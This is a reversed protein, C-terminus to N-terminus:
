MPGRRSRAPLSVLEERYMDDSTNRVEPLRLPVRPQKGRLPYDKRLPHGVFEDYLLIRRLDGHGAFRIGFMDWVERELFNAAAWLSRVSPVEPNEEPLQVKIFLRHLYTLSLLNYVVDFRPERRDLWDVATLDSLMNFALNKREKLEKMVSPVNGPEVGYCLGHEGALPELPVLKGALAGSGSLESQLRRELEKQREPQDASRRNIAEHHRISKTM